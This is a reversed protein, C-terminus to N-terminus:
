YETSGLLSHQSSLGRFVYSRIPSNGLKIYNKVNQIPIHAAPLASFRFDVIQQNTSLCRKLPVKRGNKPKQKVRMTGLLPLSEILYKKGM